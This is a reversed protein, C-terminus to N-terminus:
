KGRVKEVLTWAAVVVLGAIVGIVGNLLTPVIATAITHGRFDMIIPEILHHIAPVNHVVIGGGVLFMAATGVVALVKMLKPAFAVLAGGLKAKLGEGNSTRELYFGLDDLKVIGAVLGYVGITMLVAILSVVLIQTVISSGTVTGLAIVIIEASLIFDTRIAGAVKRKEYEEASEGTNVQEEKEEHQHSHPFLKELIKEAGEFCLFLGGILLLPMILWPIFASILLASPVLILKNKFSGKAVAWVVPIERESAVGSVQQANLALDDGLVGATKKAAMKSMLAVDDLVAAIDDLLTLLSAGAM